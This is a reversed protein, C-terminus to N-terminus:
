PSVILTRKSIKLNIDNMKLAKVVENLDVNRSIEGSYTDNTVPGSYIVEVDYWRSIQRMILKIDANKFLLFGNKWAIFDDAEVKSKSFRDSKFTAQEDPQIILTNKESSPLDRSFLKVSGELLTTKIVGEDPYANINFHTGLVQVVQGKSLVRFPKEKNHAVEFYAEGSLEVTRDNGNFNVPYKLSTAANLWVKTGDSLIVMYKGGRPTAMINFAQASDFAKSRDKKYVVKAANDKSVIVNNDTSLVGQRSNDLAIQRGDSLILIAKDTGHKIIGESATLTHLQDKKVPLYKSAYLIGGAILVIAAASWYFWKMRSVKTKYLKKHLKEKIQKEIAERDGFSFMWPIDSLDFGDTYEEFLKQEEPTCKGTTCREHLEKLEQFTM